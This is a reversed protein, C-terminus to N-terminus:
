CREWGAPAPATLGKNVRLYREVWVEMRELLNRRRRGEEGGFVGESCWVSWAGMDAAMLVDTGLRDGVVAIQAPHRVVGRDRFWAIIQDGCFPKKRAGVPLRFVPISM